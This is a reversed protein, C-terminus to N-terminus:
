DEQNSIRRLRVDVVAARGGRVAAVAEGLVESLTAPDDVTAGFAGGAAVAIGALDADGAFNVWFNDNQHAVGRPHLSLVNLRTANWGGNNFIVTLFPAHYRRAMWHVSSPVSSFYSGDGTVAVVERDPRALKIGIAAGGHWGLSSGGSQFYTAPRTRVIHRRIAVTNTVSEDLVITDPGVHEALCRALYDSSVAGGAARRGTAAISDRRREAVAAVWREREARRAPDLDVSAATAALQGLAHAGDAQLSRRAPLHWLSLGEKLPDADVHYVRVDGPPRGVVPVWAVDCDVVLMVDVESLLPEASFGAHFPHDGPFNMDPANAEVVPLALRDALQILADVAEPNRGAYSTIVLPRTADALAQVIEEAADEPLAAAGVPPWDRAQERGPEVPEELVERPATLYVPGRPASTAIQMARHTANGAQPGAALSCSWKVYPRLISHQDRVDQIFQAARNRTGFREGNMTFPSEGAFIFVPVRSRAVNHVAGGLMLTGIDVHVFVAQPKGTVLAYGHAASLGSSEHPCMIVRPLSRGAQRARALAEIFPAHDSGFNAFVHTVGWEVLGDIIADAATYPTSASNM